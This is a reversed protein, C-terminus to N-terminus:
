RMRRENIEAAASCVPTTAICGAIKIDARVRTIKWMAIVSKECHITFKYAGTISASDLLMFPLPPQGQNVM